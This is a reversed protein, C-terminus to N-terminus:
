AVTQNSIGQVKFFKLPYISNTFLLRSLGWLTYINQGETKKYKHNFM